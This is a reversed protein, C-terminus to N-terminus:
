QPSADPRPLSTAPSAGPVAPLEAWWTVGTIIRDNMPGVEDLAIWHRQQRANDDMCWNGNDLPRGCVHAAPRAVGGAAVLYVHEERIFFERITPLREAAPIWTLAAQVTQSM